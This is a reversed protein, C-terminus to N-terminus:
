NTATNTYIAENSGIVFLISAMHGISYFIIITMHHYYYTEGKSNVQFINYTIDSPDYIVARIMLIPHWLKSHLELTTM